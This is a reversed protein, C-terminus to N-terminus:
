RTKGIVPRGRASGREHPYYQRDPHQYSLCSDLKGRLPVPSLFYRSAKQFFQIHAQFARRSSQCSPSAASRRENQGNHSAGARYRRCNWFVGHHRLPSTPIRVAEHSLHHRHSPLSVRSANASSRSVTARFSVLSTTRMSRKWSADSDQRSVQLTLPLIPAKALKKAFIRAPQSSAVVVPPRRLCPRTSCERRLAISSYRTRATYALRRGTRCAPMSVFLANLTSSKSARPSTRRMRLTRQSRTGTSTPPFILAARLSSASRRSLCTSIRPLPSVAWPFSRTRLALLTLERCM